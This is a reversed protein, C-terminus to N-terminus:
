KRKKTAKAGSNPKNPLKSVAKGALKVSKDANSKLKAAEPEPVLEAEMARVKEEAKRAAAAEMALRRQMLCNEVFSRFYGTCSKMSDLGLELLERSCQRAELPMFFFLVPVITCGMLVLPLLGLGLVGLALGAFLLQHTVFRVLKLMKTFGKTQSEWAVTGTSDLPPEQHQDETSSASFALLTLVQLWVACAALCFGYRLPLGPLVMVLETPDQSLAPAPNATHSAVLGLVLSHAPSAVCKVHDVLTPLTSPGEEATVDRQEDSQNSHGNTSAPSVVNETSLQMRM